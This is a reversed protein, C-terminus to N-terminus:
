VEPQAEDSSNEAEADVHEEEIPDYGMKELVFNITRIAGDKLNLPEVWEENLADSNKYNWSATIPSKFFVDSMIKALYEGITTWDREENAQELFEIEYWLDVFNFIINWFIKVMETGWTEAGTLAFTNYFNVVLQYDSLTKHCTYYAVPGKHIAFSFSMVAELPREEETLILFGNM